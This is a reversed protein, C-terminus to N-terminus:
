GAAAEGLGRCGSLPPVGTVRAKQNGDEDELILRIKPM